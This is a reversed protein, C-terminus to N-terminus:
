ARCVLQLKSRYLTLLPFQKPQPKLVATSVNAYLYLYRKSTLTHALSRMNKHLCVTIATCRVYMHLVNCTGTWRDSYKAALWSCCTYTSLWSNATQRSFKWTGNKRSIFYLPYICLSPSSCHSKHTYTHTHTHTCATLWVCRTKEVRQPPTFPCCLAM